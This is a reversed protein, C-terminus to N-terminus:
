LKAPKRYQRIVAEATEIGDVAASVIGGAYGAGEGVPYIGDVGLSIRRDSRVIRVPASTRTEVGTLVANPDNFGPMKKGMAVIGERIGQVVAKPLCDELLGPRVGPRYTPNVSETSIRRVRKGDLFDGVNQVPAFFDGGGERYANEEWIKQMRIGALPDSETMDRRDVMCVLAANANRGARKSGSMGNVVVEAPGSAAGIVAGGPCMCFSYVGRGDSSQATLQYEAPPLRPHGAAKGYQIRNIMEQPHEIRYGVAFPKTEMTIGTTHLMQYTDRASHGICLLAVSCPIEADGNVELAKLRGEQIRLGTLKTGFSFECGMENLRERMRVLIHRLLDTGIHPKYYYMIEQPAGAELLTELVMSIRPNKIRTMLKGDSFTGAGGEGFAVNSDLSLRAEKWFAGVDIIREEVPKGREIIRPPYGHEALMLAAFLGSPGAGVVVPRHPLENEGSRVLFAPIVELAARRINRGKVNGYSPDVQVDFTYLFHINNKRRADLSKKVIIVKRIAEVPLGIAEAAITQIDASEKELPVPLNEIRIM